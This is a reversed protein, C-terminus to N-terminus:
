EYKVPQYKGVRNSKGLVHLRYNVTVLIVDFEMLYEPGHEAGCGTEFGGGHIFVMVPKLNGNHKDPM